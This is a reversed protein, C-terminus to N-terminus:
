GKFRGLFSLWIVDYMGGLVAFQLMCNADASDNIMLVHYDTDNFTDSSEIENMVYDDNFTLFYENLSQLIHDKLYEKSYVGEIKEQKRLAFRM